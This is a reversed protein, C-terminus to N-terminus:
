NFTVRDCIVSAYARKELTWDYYDSAVHYMHFKLDDDGFSRAHTQVARVGDPLPDPLETSPSARLNHLFPDSLDRVIENVQSGVADVREDLQLRTM